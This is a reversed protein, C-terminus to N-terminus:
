LLNEMKKIYNKNRLLYKEKHKYYNEISSNRHVIVKCKECYRKNWYGLFEKGCLSCKRKTQRDKKWM